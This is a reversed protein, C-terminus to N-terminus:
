PAQNMSLYASWFEKELHLGAADDIKEPRAPPPQLLQIPFAGVSLAAGSGSAPARRAADALAQRVATLWERKM